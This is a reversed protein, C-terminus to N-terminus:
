SQGTREHSSMWHLAEADLFKVSRVETSKSHELTDISASSMSKLCIKREYDWLQVVSNSTAFVVWPRTAHWDLCRVSCGMKVEFGWEM